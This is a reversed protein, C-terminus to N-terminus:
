ESAPVSIIAALHPPLVALAMSVALCSIDPICFLPEYKTRDLPNASHFDSIHRGNVVRLRGETARKMEEELNLKTTEM